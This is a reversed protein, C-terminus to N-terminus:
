KKKARAAIKKLLEGLRGPIYEAADKIIQASDSSIKLEHIPQQTALNEAPAIFYSITKLDKFEPLTELKKQIDPLIYRLQTAWAANDTQISLCGAQYNAVQCHSQLLIPLQKKLLKNLTTLRKVAHFYGELLSNDSKLLHDVKKMESM